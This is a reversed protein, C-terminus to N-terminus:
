VAFLLEDRCLGGMKRVGEAARELGEGAEASVVGTREACVDM